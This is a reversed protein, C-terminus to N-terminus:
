PQIETNAAEVAQERAVNLSALVISALIGVIALVPLTAALVIAVIRGTSRKGSPDKYVVVSHAFKDHLAQKKTTFGAMIYGIMLILASVLKGITERIVVKRLPLDQMDESKVTIGVLIKGLTAGKKYTMLVYYLWAVSMSLLYGIIDVGLKSLGSATLIIGSIISVIVNPIILILSDVTIAVWRIWFGAYKVPPASTSNPVQQLPLGTEVTLISFAENIDTQPWGSSILSNQISEKPLGQALQMKVFDLLQPNAM